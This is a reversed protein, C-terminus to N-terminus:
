LCPAKRYALPSKGYTKQFALRLHEESRFGARYVIQKIGLDTEELLTVARTVRCYQIEDLVSHGMVSHFRRDLTRRAIGVKEAVSPVDVIEHSFNWIYEVAAKVIEDAIDPAGGTIGGAPEKVFHSVLGLAQRSLNLSNATPNRHVCELLYEFQARFLKRNEVIPMSERLQFAKNKMWRIPDNGNFNVWLITWGSKPSPRHRHWEGACFFFMDGTGMHVRHARTEFEGSGATLLALCFDPLIRGENWAFRYMPGDGRDLADGPEFPDWGAHTVYFASHFLSQHVPMAHRFPVSLSM